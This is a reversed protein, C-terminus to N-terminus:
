IRYEELLYPQKLGLNLKFIRTRKLEILDLLCEPLSFVPTRRLSQLGCGSRKSLIRYFPISLPELGITAFLEDQVLEKFAKCIIAFLLYYVRLRISYVKPVFVM